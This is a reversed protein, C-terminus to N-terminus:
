RMSVGPNKVKKLAYLVLVRPERLDVQVAYCQGTVIPAKLHVPVLVKNYKHRDKNSGPLM